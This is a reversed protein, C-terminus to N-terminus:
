DEIELPVFEIKTVGYRFAIEELFSRNEPAKLRQLSGADQSTIGVSLNTGDVFLPVLKQVSNLLSPRNAAVMNAIEQVITAAIQESDDFHELPDFTKWAITEKERPQISPLELPVSPDELYEQLVGYIEEALLLTFASFEQESQLKFLKQLDAHLQLNGTADWSWEAGKGSKFTLFVRSAFKEFIPPCTLALEPILSSWSKFFPKRIFTQAYLIISPDLSTNKRYQVTGDHRKYFRCIIETIQKQNEKKSIRSDLTM